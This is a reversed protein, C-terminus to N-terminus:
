SFGAATGNRRPDAAGILTGDTRFQIAQVAGMSYSNPAKTEVKRFRKQLRQRLSDNIAPREVLVNRSLLAHVRPCAVAEAVSMGRDIVGSIVQLIASTIRRSGAAGLALFPTPRHPCNRESNKAGSLDSRLVLTPAINSLPICHSGLQYPHRRRPCTSLYNNYLFGLKENAVKAGFLSQISQTLTVVNGQADATCLHTTEGPKERCNHDAPEFCYSKINSAIGAARKDNLLWNYLWPSSERPHVPLRERERFVAHTVEALIEHWKNATASLESPEFHELTKLGLLVELGGAPRPTSVVRYGRYNISLAQREVPLTFGALDQETILGDHKKMDEVIASAVPGQYFDRTGRDALCRLTAALKKQRLVDGVKRPRGNKLFMEAAAPSALLDTFCWNLQHRHLRTVVYGHEALRIAPEMVKAQDLLGYRKQAFGITAVTSPITCARYGKQQQDKSVKRRSVAQPAYSHGDVVVMRGTAFRILITTQGGLGSCAPECVALAWAAAVAADIANGGAQLTQVAAQTAAPFATAVMGATAVAQKQGVAKLVPGFQRSNVEASQVM